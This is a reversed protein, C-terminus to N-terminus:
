QQESRFAAVMEPLASQLTKRSEFGLLSRIKDSSYCEDGLLKQQRYSDFPFREMRDGVYAAASFVAKPVSWRPVRRGVAQCIADYITRTSYDQGDTAIFIEGNARGDEAALLIAQVLDDVHIMSRRNGTEPLPPFWGKDIGALMMRLNGKVGSGYVLSPRIVSVHMGSQQGIELVELEAERKTQGYIGEPRSQDGEAMCHGEIASGGAKVSSIFVFRSVGSEAALQALQVTADVNVKRYLHEVQSADGLDHAYGALHFVTDIGQLTDEPITDTQLDCIFTDFGSQPTRSLLRPSYESKRLAVLLRQGVFGTAGTVFTAGFEATDSLSM